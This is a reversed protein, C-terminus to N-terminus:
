ADDRWDINRSWLWGVVAVVAVVAAVAAYAAASM